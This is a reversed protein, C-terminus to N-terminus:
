RFFHHFGVEYITAASAYTSLHGGLGDHHKNARHVMVASNWRIISRIRWEMEQDGPYVPQQDVPITNVYPSRVLYPLRVGEEQLHEQVQGLLYHAREKGAYHVVADISDRWEQTELPDPDSVLTQRFDNRAM